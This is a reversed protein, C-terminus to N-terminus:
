GLCHLNQSGRKVTPSVIINYMDYASYSLKCLCHVGLLLIAASVRSIDLQASSSLNWIEAGGHM